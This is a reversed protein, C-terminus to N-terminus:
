CMVQFVTDLRNLLVVQSFFRRKLSFVVEGDLRDDEGTSPSNDAWIFQKTLIPRM